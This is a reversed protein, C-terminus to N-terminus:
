QRSLYLQEPTLKGRYMWTTADIGRGETSVYFDLVFNLYYPTSPATRVPGTQQLGKVEERERTGKKPYSKDIVIGQGAADERRGSNHPHLYIGVWATLSGKQDESDNNEVDYALVTEGSDVGARCLNKCDNSSLLNLVAGGGEPFSIPKDMWLRISDSVEIRGNGNDMKFEGRGASLVGIWPGADHGTTEVLSSNATFKIVGRTPRRDGYNPNERHSPNQQEAKWAGGSLLAYTGGARQVGLFSGFPFSRGDATRVQVVETGGQVWSLLGRAPLQAAVTCAGVAADPLSYHFIKWQDSFHVEDYAADGRRAVWWDLPGYDRNFNLAFRTNGEAPTTYAFSPEVTQTTGGCQMRLRGDWAEGTSVVRGWMGRAGELLISATLLNARAVTEEFRDPVAFRPARGHPDGYSLLLWDVAANFVFVQEDTYRKFDKKFAATSVPLRPRCEAAQELKCKSEIVTAAWLYMLYAKEQHTRYEMFKKEAFDYVAQGEFRFNTFGRTERWKYFPYRLMPQGDMVRTTLAVNLNQLAVDLQQVKIINTAFEVMDAKTVQLGPRFEALYKKWAGEITSIAHTAQIKQAAQEFELEMKKHVQTLERALDEQGRTLVALEKSIEALQKDVKKKWHDDARGTVSGLIDCIYRDGPELVRGNCSSDYILGGVAKFAFEAGKGAASGAAAKVLTVVLTDDARAPSALPPAALFACVLVATLGRLFQCM